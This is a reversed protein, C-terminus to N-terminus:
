GGSLSVTVKREAGNAGQVTFSLETGDATFVRNLAGNLDDSGFIKGDNVGTILDGIRIGAKRVPSDDSLGIVRVGIGVSQNNRLAMVGQTVFKLRGPLFHFQPSQTKQDQLDKHDQDTDPRWEERSQLTDIARKRTAEYVKETKSRLSLYLELWNEPTNGPLKLDELCMRWSRAFVGGDGDSLAFTEETCANIDFVGRAEFFLKQFTPHITNRPPARFRIESAQTPKTRLRLSHFTIQNDGRPAPTTEILSSCSDSFLLVLRAQTRTMMQERLESRKLLEKGAGSLQLVHQRTDPWIGGHCSLFCILTDEPGAPHNVYHNLVNAKTAREGELTTFRLYEEGIGTKLSGEINEKDKRVESEKLAKSDLVILVYVKGAASLPTFGAWSFLLALALVCRSFM